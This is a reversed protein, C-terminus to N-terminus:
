QEEGDQRIIIHGFEDVRATQDSHFVTTATPEQVIAPGAIEDDAALDDRRYVPFEKREDAAFCYAERSGSPAPESRGRELQEMVPKQNEGVARVRLHVVEAVDDMTHGYRTEHESAFRDYLEDTSEAGTVPVEVTHEQGLYRMEVSRNLSVRERDFGEDRLQDVAKAELKDFREDIVDVGLEELPEIDTQSFDYVVDSMLMGWASFVAPAQPVVVEDVRLERALMPNFMPGAGGYAVMSFDRPDLGREVTIERIASVTNATTVDIVGKSAETVSLDQPDALKEIIGERTAAVDLEMDGGLFEDPDIYGLVVAADTVTPETGGQGYCIPGPDAGASQPGVKLLEGDLWAISGGGAGITRIDYVPILLPQQELSSQYAVAPEGDEVVCADLSTGGMDVALVQDRGMQEAVRSAGILGGAPGSLITEIPASKAEEVPVAGGGSRALYFEGDFGEDGIAADLQNV